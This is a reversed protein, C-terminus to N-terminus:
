VDRTDFTGTSGLILTAGVILTPDTDDDDRENSIVEVHRYDDGDYFTVLKDDPDGATLKRLMGVTLWGNLEALKKVKDPGDPMAVAKAFAIARELREAEAPPTPDSPSQEAHQDFAVCLFLLLQETGQVSVEYYQAPQPRGDVVGVLTLGVFWGTLGPDIGSNGVLDHMWDIPGHHQGGMNEIPVRFTHRILLQERRDPLDDWPSTDIKAMDYNKALDGEGPQVANVFVEWTDDPGKSLTVHAVDLDNLLLAGIHEGDDNAFWDTTLRINDPTIRM